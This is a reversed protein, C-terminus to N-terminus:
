NTYKERQVCELSIKDGIKSFRRVKTPVKSSKRGLTEEEKRGFLEVPSRSWPNRNGLKGAWPVGTIHLLLLFSLLFFFSRSSRPLTVRSIPPHRWYLGVQVLSMERREDRPTFSPSSFIICPSLLRVSTLDRVWKWKGGTQRPFTPLFRALSLSRTFTPIGLFGIEEHSKLWKRKSKRDNHRSIQLINTQTRNNSRTDTFTAQWLESVSLRPRTEEMTSAALKLSSCYVLLGNGVSERNLTVYTEPNKSRCWRSRM